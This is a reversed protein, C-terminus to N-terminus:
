INSYREYQSSRRYIKKEKMKVVEALMQIEEGMQTFIRGLQTILSTLMKLLNSSSDVNHNWCAKTREEWSNVHACLVYVHYKDCAGRMHRQLNQWIKLWKQAKKKPPSTFYPIVFIKYTYFIVFRIYWGVVLLAPLYSWLKLFNRSSHIKIKLLCTKGKIEGSSLILDYM